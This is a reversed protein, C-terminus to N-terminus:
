EKKPRIPRTHDIPLKQKNYALLPSLFVTPLLLSLFPEKGWGLRCVTNDTAVCFEIMEM